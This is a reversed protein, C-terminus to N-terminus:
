VISIQINDESVDRTELKNDHQIAHRAMYALLKKGSEEWIAFGQKLRNASVGGQGESRLRRWEDGAAWFANRQVYKDWKAHGVYTSPLSNRFSRFNLVLVEHALEPDLILIQPERTMFVGVARQTDKYESYDNSM